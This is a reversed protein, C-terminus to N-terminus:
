FLCLVVDLHCVAELGIETVAEDVELDRFAEDRLELVLEQLFVKLLSVLLLLSAQEIVLQLFHRM